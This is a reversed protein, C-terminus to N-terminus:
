PSPRPSRNHTPRSGTIPLHREQLLLQLVETPSDDPFDSPTTIGVNVSQKEPPAQSRSSRRRYYFMYLTTYVKMFQVIHYFLM